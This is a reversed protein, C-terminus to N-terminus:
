SGTYLQLSAWYYPNSYVSGSRLMKLKALRLASAPTEHSGLKSYFYGMLQPEAADDVDWLGAIVHHAGARLFGWALGVLGEGSYVRMGAGSCASITVLEAHLPIKVIDRAYLKYIGKEGEPSLIIASELPSLESATGHTVFHILGFREPHSAQYISPVADKGKITTERGKLFPQEAVTNIEQEAYRLHPYRSDALPNGILLLKNSNEAQRNVAKTLLLVSSANEIEVDEIWYHPKLGSVQLTEFNLHHLSGDPIIIIPSAHSAESVRPILKEAPKVLMDYLDQALGERDGVGPPGQLIRNYQAVKEAIQQQAPLPFLKLDSPTIVWLFSEKRGLWYAFVVRSRQKLYSQISSIRMETPDKPGTVRLGDSLTRARSFEAVQLAKSWNGQEILFSIYNGRFEAARASFALKNEHNKVTSLVADLRALVKKFQGEARRIEHQALYIDALEAEAEWGISKKPSGQIIQLLLREASAFDRKANAIRASILKSELESPYDSTTSKLSLAQNNHQIAEDLNGMKLAVSALGNECIATDKEADTENGLEKNINLAKTFYDKAKPYEGHALYIEGLDLLATVGNSKLGMEASRKEAEEFLPIAKDLDGLDLYSWGLNVLATAELSGAHLQQVVVRSETLWDIAEDYHELDTSLYGLMGLAQAEIYSQDYQRALRLAKQSYQEAMAPKQELSALIGEDLAVEGSVQPAVTAAMEEAETLYRKAESFRKKYGLLLGQIARRRAAIEANALASPPVDLLALSEEWRHKEFLIEAKLIRFKYNATPNDQQSGHFGEDV